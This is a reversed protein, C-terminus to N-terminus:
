CTQSVVGFKGLVGLLAALDIPASVRVAWQAEGADLAEQQALQEEVVALTAESADVGEASRAAVRARLLEPPLDFDLIAFPVGLRTALNRFLLRNDRALFTADIIVPFGARLVTEASGSMAEYVRRRAHPAYRDGNEVSHEWRQREIDSRLRIAGLREVLPQTV